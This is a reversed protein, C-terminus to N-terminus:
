SDHNVERPANPEYLRPPYLARNITWAAGEKRQDYLQEFPAYRVCGIILMASHSTTPDYRKWRKPESKPPTRKAKRSM